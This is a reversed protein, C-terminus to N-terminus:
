ISELLVTSACPRNVNSNLLLQLKSGLLVSLLNCSSCLSIDSAFCKSYGVYLEDLSVGLTVHM